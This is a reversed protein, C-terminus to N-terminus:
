CDFVGWSTLNSCDWDSGEEVLLQAYGIGAEESVLSHNGLGVPLATRNWCQRLKALKSM